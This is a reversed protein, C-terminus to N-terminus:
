NAAPILDQAAEAVESGEYNDLIVEFIRQAEDELNMNQYCVGLKYLADAGGWQEATDPWGEPSGPRFPTQGMLDLAGVIFQPREPDHDFARLASIVFDHPTKYKRHAPDWTDDAEDPDNVLNCALKRVWDSHDLLRDIEM